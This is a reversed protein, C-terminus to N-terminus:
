ADPRDAARRRVGARLVAVWLMLLLALLVMALSLGDPNSALSPLFTIVAVVGVGWVVAVGLSFVIFPTSPQGALRMREARQREAASWQRQYDRHPVIARIGRVGCIVALVLALVPVIVVIGFTRQGTFAFGAAQGSNLMLVIFGLAAVAAWAIAWVFLSAPAPPAPAPSPTSSM